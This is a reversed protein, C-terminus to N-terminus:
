VSFAGGPFPDLNNTEITWTWEEIERAYSIDAFKRVWATGAKALSTGNRDKVLIAFVGDGQLEDLKHVASLVDNFVSTQLVTVVITGSKDNSQSRAGEGDAGTKVIFADNNRAVVVFTGDAKGTMPVGNMIVDVDAADYNKVSM